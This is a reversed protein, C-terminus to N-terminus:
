LNKRKMYIIVAMSILIVPIVIMFIVLMLTATSSTAKTADISFNDVDKTAINITTGLQSDALERICSRFFEVNDDNLSYDNIFSDSSFNTTGFVFLEASNGDNRCSYMAVNYKGVNMIGNEDPNGNADVEATAANSSTVLVPYTDVLPVSVDTKRVSRANTSHLYPLASYGSFKDEAVVVSDTAYGSRQYGPDNEYVLLPDININMQNLLRNLRDFKENVNLTNYDVAIFIKGGKNLYDSMAVYMKESIDTNPGNLILLNCDDPISFNDSVQLEAVDVSMAVLIKDLNVHTDEKLGTVVYAKSAFGQTLSNMANTFTYETNNGTVFYVGSSYYKTVDYIYCEMPTVIKIRGNYEVVFNGSNSALDYSGTPDLSSIISPQETPDIYDVTVKGGSKRAYDDLLPIICQYSTGAVNEPRKFLGVIRIHTDQPLGNLYDASVQTISNQATDSFDFTLATGLIKDFLFNGVIIIAALLVVSGISFLKLKDSRSDTQVVNIKEKSM